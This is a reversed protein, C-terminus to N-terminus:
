FKGLAWKTGVGAAAGLITNLPDTQQQTQWNQSDIGYKSVGLQGVNGWASNVSNMGGTFAGGIASLGSLPAAASGVAQSGLGGAVQASNSSFGPLGRGLAAADLRRAWGLQKAAERTQSLAFVKALAEDNAMTGAVKFNLGSNPNVGQRTLARATQERANGFQQSIDSMVLGARRQQEAETDYNNAESIIRDELPVQKARWRDFYADSQKRQSDMLGIQANSAREAIDTSRDQAAFMKPMLTTELWDQMRTANNALMLQAEGIRPDPSPM